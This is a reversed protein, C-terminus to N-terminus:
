VHARGVMRIIWRGTAPDILRGAAPSKRTGVIAMTTSTDGTETIMWITFDRFTTPFMTTATIASIRITTTRTTLILTTVAIAGTTNERTAIASITIWIPVRRTM